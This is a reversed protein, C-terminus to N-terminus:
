TGPRGGRGVRPDPPDGRRDAPDADALGRLVMDTAILVDPEGEGGFEIDTCSASPLPTVEPLEPVDGDAETAGTGEGAGPEDDGGCGSAVLALVGALLALLVPMRSRKVM